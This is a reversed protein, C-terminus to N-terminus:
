EAQPNINSYRRAIRIDAGYLPMIEYDSLIRSAIRETYRDALLNPDMNMSIITSKKRLARENVTYFLKGITFANARETGLDDIILLDSDLVFQNLRDEEIDSDYRFATKEFEEFLDIASFYVVSHCSDMLAKAICNSLYSKGTGTPGYFLINGGDRDFNEAYERCRAVIRKMHDYVSRRGNEEKRSYHDFSLNEFNEKELRSELHSQHYLLDVALRVFCHCKEGNIFGTDRCDPCDYTMEFDQESLGKERLLLQRKEKLEAAEKELQKKEDERNLIAARARKSANEAYADQLTILEPIEKYLSEKKRNLEELHKMRRRDYVRMIEAYQDNKLPM